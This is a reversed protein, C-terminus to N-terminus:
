VGNGKELSLVAPGTLVINITVRRYKEDVYEVYVDNTFFAAANEEAKITLDDVVLYTYRKVYKIM